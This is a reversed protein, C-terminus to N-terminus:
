FTSFYIADSSPSVALFGNPRGTLKKPAYYECDKFATATPWWAPPSLVGYFKPSSNGSLQPSLIAQWKSLDSAPVTIVGVVSSDSPGPIMGGSNDAVDEAMHADLLQGPLQCYKTLITTARAIREERTGTIENRIRKQPTPGCAALAICLLLPFTTKVHPRNTSERTLATV